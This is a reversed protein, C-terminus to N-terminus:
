VSNSRSFSEYASKASYKGSPSFRWIHVDEVNPQLSFDMILDWLSLYEVLHQVDEVNHKETTQTVAHVKDVNYFFSILLLYEISNMKIKVLGQNGM